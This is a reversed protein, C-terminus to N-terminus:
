KKKPSKKSKSQRGEEAQKLRQKLASSAVDDRKTAEIKKPKQLLIGNVISRYKAGTADIKKGHSSQVKAVQQDLFAMDDLADEESDGMKAKAIKGQAKNSGGGTKGGKKKSPAKKKKTAQTAAVSALQQKAQEEQRRMRENALAKLTQNMKSMGQASTDDQVTDSDDDDTDLEHIEAEDSSIRNALQGQNNTTKTRDTNEPTETLTRSEAKTAKTDKGRAKDIPKPKPKSESCKTTPRKEEECITMVENGKAPKNSSGTSSGGINQRELADTLQNITADDAASVDERIAEYEMASSYQGNEEIWRVLQKLFAHKSVTDTDCIVVCQRRARTVAVNLRRDDGLFGVVGKPNSRVLSLVVAEREGGQFGDVSRIELKPYAPLLLNRLVEVQGNYPTIIAIDPEKLGAALLQKV